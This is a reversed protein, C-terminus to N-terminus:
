HGVAFFAHCDVNSKEEASSDYSTGSWGNSVVSVPEADTLDFSM